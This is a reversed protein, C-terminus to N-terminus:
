NGNATTAAETVSRYIRLWPNDVYLDRAAALAASVVEQNAKAIREFQARAETRADPTGEIWFRSLNLAQTQAEGTAEILASVNGAIDTPQEAIRRALDLSRRQALQLEEILRQSLTLQNAGASRAADMLATQAEALADFYRTASDTIPM